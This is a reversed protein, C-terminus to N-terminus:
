NKHKVFCISTLQVYLRGSKFVKRYNHKLYMAGMLSEQMLLWAVSLSRFIEFVLGLDAKCSSDRVCQLNVFHMNTCYITQICKLILAYIHIASIYVCICYFFGVIGYKKNNNVSLM